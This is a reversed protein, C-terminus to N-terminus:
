NLIIFATTWKHVAMIVIIVLIIYYHHHPDRMKKNDFNNHMFFFSVYKIFIVQELCDRVLPIPMTDRATGTFVVIGIKFYIRILAAPPSILSVALSVSRPISVTISPTISVEPIAAM